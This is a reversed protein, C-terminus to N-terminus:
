SAIALQQRLKRLGRFLLNRATGESCELIGAVERIPMEKLYRLEIAMRHRPNLESLASLVERQRERHLLEHSQHEPTHRERVLHWAEHRAQRRTTSKATNIGVNVAIRSLWSKLSEGRFSELKRYAKLFIDQTLDLAEESNSAFSAVLSYVLREYRRMLTDFADLDGTLVADVLQRDTTEM